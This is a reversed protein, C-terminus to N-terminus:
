AAIMQEHRALAAQVRARAALLEAEVQPPRGVSGRRETPGPLAHRAQARLRNERIAGARSRVDVPLIPRADGRSDRAGYSKYHDNVAQVADTYEIDQMIPYWAAHANTPFPTRDISQILVLLEQVEHPRM